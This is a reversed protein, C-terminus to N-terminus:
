WDWRDWQVVLTVQRRPITEKLKLYLPPLLRSNLIFILVSRSRRLMVCRVSSREKVYTRTRVFDFYTPVKLM